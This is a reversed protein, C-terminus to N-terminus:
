WGRNVHRVMHVYGNSEFPLNFKKSENGGKHLEFQHPRFFIDNIKIHGKTGGIFYERPLKANFGSSLTAHKEKFNASDALHKIYKTLQHHENM